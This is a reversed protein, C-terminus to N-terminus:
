GAPKFRDPVPINTAPNTDHKTLRTVLEGGVFPQLAAEVADAAERPYVEQGGVRVAFALGHKARMAPDAVTAKTWRYLPYTDVGEREAEAVYAEFASLQCVLVADLPTLRETVPQLAPAEPDARAAEAVAEPLYVRIQYQWAEDM